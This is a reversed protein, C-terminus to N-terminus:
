EGFYERLNERDLVQQPPLRKLFSRLDAVNPIEPSEDQLDYIRSLLQEATINEAPEILYKQRKRSLGLREMFGNRELGKNRLDYLRGECDLIWHLESTGSKAVGVELQSTIEDLKGIREFFNRRVVVLTDRKCLLVPFHM